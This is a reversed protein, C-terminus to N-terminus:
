LRAAGPSRRGAPEELLVHFGARRLRAREAATADVLSIGAWHDRERIPFPHPFLVLVDAAGPGIEAVLVPGHDDTGLAAPVIRPPGIEAAAILLRM